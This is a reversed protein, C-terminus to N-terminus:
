KRDSPQTGSLLNEVIISTKPYILHQRRYFTFGLSGTTYTTYTKM